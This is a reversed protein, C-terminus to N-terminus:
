KLFRISLAISYIDANLSDNMSQVRVTKGDQGFYMINKVGSIGAEGYVVYSGQKNEFQDTLWLSGKNKDSGIETTIEKQTQPYFGRISAFYRGVGGQSDKHIEGLEIEWQDNNDFYSGNSSQKKVLVPEPWENPYNFTIGLEKNSYTKFNNQPSVPQSEAPKSVENKLQTDSDQNIPQNNNTTGFSCGSLFIIPILLVFIINKKM